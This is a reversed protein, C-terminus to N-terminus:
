GTWALRRATFGPWAVCAAEGFTGVPHRCTITRNASYGPLLSLSDLHMRLTSLWLRQLYVTQLTLFPTFTDAAAPALM